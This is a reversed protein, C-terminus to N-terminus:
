GKYLNHKYIYDEVEKPVLYHIPLNAHVRNRIDTASIEIGRTQVFIASEVYKDIYDIPYSSKRRLVVINALKLIEDPDKWTHFKFINDYGIILDISDYYKKFERLTDVTYSITHQKIEFDSCEFFPIEDLALKLMKIRHEASSAKEHQKHPSIFAPIFIIKDLARIEKVSQATILHGHHIPDFTGGFIGVRSM